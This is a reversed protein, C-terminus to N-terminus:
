EAHGHEQLAADLLILGSQGGYIAEAMARAQEQPLGLHQFMSYGCEILAEHAREWEDPTQPRFGSAPVAAKLKQAATRLVDDRQTNDNKKMFRHGNPEDGM